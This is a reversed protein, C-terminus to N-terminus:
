NLLTLIAEIKRRLGKKTQNSKTLCQLIENYLEVSVKGYDKYTNPKDYTKRWIEVDFEDVWRGYLFTDKTFSHNKDTCSTGKIICFCHINHEDLSMCGNKTNEEPFPFHIQSSPLNVLMLGNDNSKIVLCYKPSPAKGDSFYFPTLYLLTREEIM